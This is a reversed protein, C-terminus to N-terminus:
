QNRKGPTSSYVGCTHIQENVQFRIILIFSNCSFAKLFLEQHDVKIQGNIEGLLSYKCKKNIRTNLLKAHKNTLFKSNFTIEKKAPSQLELGQLNIM